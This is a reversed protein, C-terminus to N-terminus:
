RVVKFTEYNASSCVYMSLSVKGKHASSFTQKKTENVENSAKLRFKALQVSYTSQVLRLIIQHYYDDKTVYIHTIFEM